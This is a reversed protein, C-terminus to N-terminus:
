QADHMSSSGKLAGSSEDTHQFEGLKSQLGLANTLLLTLSPPIM